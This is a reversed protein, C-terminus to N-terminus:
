RRLRPILMPTRRRYAAYQPRRALMHREKLPISIFLFLATMSLAGIVTWASEPAGAGILWLGWWFLLEGLYNPHRARAWLGRALLEGPAPRTARFAHLQRDAILELLVGVLAVTVGLADLPGLSGGRALATWLPLCGLFVLATPMLHIGLLSALWYSRGVQRRIDRYRWDEDDLGRWRRLCNYTLRIAWLSVVLLVAGARWPNPELAPRTVLYLAIVPPAVSWYPDYLSSNNCTVSFGFVIVTAVVDALAIVALPHWSPVVATTVAAGLLAVLYAVGCWMLALRRATVANNM